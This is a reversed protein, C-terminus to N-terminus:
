DLDDGLRIRRFREHLAIGSAVAVNISADDEQDESPRVPIECLQDCTEITEDELGRGEAGFLLVVRDASQM